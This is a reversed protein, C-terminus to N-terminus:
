PLPQELSILAGAESLLDRYQRQIEPDDITVEMGWLRRHMGELRVILGRLAARHVDTMLPNKETNRMLEPIVENEFRGQVDVNWERFFGDLGALFQIAREQFEGERSAADTAFTRCDMLSPIATAAAEGLILRRGNLCRTTLVFARQRFSETYERHMRDLQRNAEAFIVAPYTMMLDEDSQFGLSVAARYVDGLTIEPNSAILYSILIRTNRSDAHHFQRRAVMYLVEHLILVARSTRGHRPHDFLRQDVHLYTKEGEFFHSALTALVCRGSDLLGVTNVDNVPELGFPQRIINNSDLRRLADNAHGVLRPITWNVRSMVRSIYVLFREGEAPEIIQPVLEGAMGRPQRAEFLDYSEISVINPLMANDIYGGNAHIQDVISTSDFCVVGNGGGGGSITGDGVEECHANVSFICFIGIILNSFVRRNM